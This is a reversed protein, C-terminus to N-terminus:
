CRIKELQYTSVWLSELEIHNSDNFNPREILSELNNSKLFTVVEGEFIVAQGPRFPSFIKNIVM